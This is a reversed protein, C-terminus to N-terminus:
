DASTSSIDIDGGSERAVRGWVQVNEKFATAWQAPTQRDVPISGGDILLVWGFVPVGAIRLVTLANAINLNSPPTTASRKPQAQLRQCM